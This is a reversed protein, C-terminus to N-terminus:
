KISELLNMIEPNDHKTARSYLTEGDGDIEMLDISSTNLLLMKIIEVHGGEVVHSLPTRGKYDKTNVDQGYQILLSVIERYGREAAWSLACRREEGEQSPLSAKGTELLFRVIDTYGEILAISIATSGDDAVPDPDAGSQCLLNLIPLYGFNAAAYLPTAGRWDKPDPYAGKALLLQVIYESGNKVALNIYPTLLLEAKEASGWNAAFMLATWGKKFMDDTAVAANVDVDERSLFQSVPAESGHGATWPFPTRGHHDKYNPDVGPAALLQKVVSENGCFGAYAISPRGMDDGLNPNIGKTSLLLAVMDVHGAQAARALFTKHFNEEEQYQSNPDVGKQLLLSKAISTHGAQVAISLADYIIGLKVNNSVGSSANLSHQATEVIGRDAAWLLAPMQRDMANLRYLLPNITSHLDRNTRALLNIDSELALYGAIHHLLENPLDVLPRM